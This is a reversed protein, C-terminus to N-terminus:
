PSAEASAMMLEAIRFDQLTDIDLAREVPVHV